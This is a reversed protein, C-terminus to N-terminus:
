PEREPARALRFSAKISTVEPGGHFRNSSSAQHGSDFFSGGRMVRFFGRNDYHSSTWEWVNGLMDHIGFANAQLSGVPQTQLTRSERTWAFEQLRVGQDDDPWYYKSFEGSSDKSEARCAYEWEWETLLRSGSWIAFMEADWFTVGIVPRRPDDSALIEFFESFHKDHAPDFLRYLAQTCPYISVSYREKLTIPRPQNEAHDRHGVMVDLSKGEEPIVKSFRLDRDIISKTSSSKQLDVFETLFDKMIKSSIACPPLDTSEAMKNLRPWAVAMMETPRPGDPCPRFVRSVLEGWRDKSPGMASPSMGCLFTWLEQFEPHISKEKPWSFLKPIRAAAEGREAQSSYRVLWLAAFFNRLTASRWLIRDESDEFFRFEILGSNLARIQNRKKELTDIKEQEWGPVTRLRMLLPEGISQVTDETPGRLWMTMALATAYVFFQYRSIGEPLAPLGKKQHEVDTQFAPWISEWYVDSLTEVQKFRDETLGRLVEITRPTLSFKQSLKQLHEMRSSGIAAAMQESSYMGVCCFTWDSNPDEYGQGTSRAFLANWFAQDIAYPRGAVMCHLQDHEDLLNRLAQVRVVGDDKNVEDLGDVFLTVRGLAMQRTLWAEIASHYSKPISHNGSNTGASSKLVANLRMFCSEEDAIPSGRGWFADLSRPFKGLHYRLVVHAELRSRLYVTQELAISKGIGASSTVCLLRRKPDSSQQSNGAALQQLFQTREAVSDIAKWLRSPHDDRNWERHSANIAGFEPLSELQLAKKLSVEEGQPPKLVYLRQDAIFLPLSQPINM